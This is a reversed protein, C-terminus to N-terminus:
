YSFETTCYVLWGLSSAHVNEWCRRRRDRPQARCFAERAEHSALALAKCSELVGREGDPSEVSSTLVAETAGEGQDAADTEESSAAVCASLCMVLAAVMCTSRMGTTSQSM